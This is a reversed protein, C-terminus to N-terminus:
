VKDRIKRIIDKCEHWDPREEFVEEIIDDVEKWSGPQYYNLYYFMVFIDNATAKESFALDIIKIIKEKTIEEQGM